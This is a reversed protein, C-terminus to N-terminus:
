KDKSPLFSSSSSSSSSSSPIISANRPRSERDERSRLSSLSSVEKGGFSGIAALNASNSSFILFLSKPVEDVSAVGSSAFNYPSIIRSNSSSPCAPIYPFRMPSNISPFSGLSTCSKSLNAASSSSLRGEGDEEPTPKPFVGDAVVVEDSISGSMSSNISRANRSANSSTVDLVSISGFTAPLMLSSSSVIFSNFRIKSLALSCSISLTCSIRSSCAAM